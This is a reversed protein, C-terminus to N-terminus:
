RQLAPYAIVISWSGALLHTVGAPAKRRQLVSLLLNSLIRALYLSVIFIVLASILNPIGSILSEVFNPWFKEM